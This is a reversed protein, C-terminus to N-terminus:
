PDRSTLLARSLPRRGGLSKEEASLGQSRSAPSAIEDYVARLGAMMRPYAHRQKVRARAARGMRDRLAANDLLMSLRDALARSDGVPIVFGNVGDDVYEGPGGSDTVVVASACALAELVVNGAAELEAAHVFV